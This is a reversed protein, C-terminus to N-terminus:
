GWNNHQLDFPVFGAEAAAGVLNVFNKKPPPDRERTAVMNLLYFLFWSIVSHTFPRCFPKNNNM